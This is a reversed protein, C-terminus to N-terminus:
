KIDTLMIVLVTLKQLVVFTMGFFVEVEHVLWLILLTNM